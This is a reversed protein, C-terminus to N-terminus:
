RSLAPVSVLSRPPRVKIDVAMQRTVGDANRMEVNRQESLKLVDKEAEARMKEIKENRLQAMVDAFAEEERELVQLAEAEEEDDLDYYWEASDEAVQEAATTAVSEGEGPPARPPPTPSRSWDSFFLEEGEQDQAAHAQGERRPEAASPEAMLADEGGDTDPVAPTGLQAVTEPLVDAEEAQVAERAKELLPLPSPMNVPSPARIDEQPVPAAPGPSRTQLAASPAPAVPPLALLDAEYVVAPEPPLSRRRPEAAPSPSIARAVPPSPSRIPPEPPAPSRPAAERPPSAAFDRAQM